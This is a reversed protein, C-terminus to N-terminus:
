VNAASRIYRARISINNTDIREWLKCLEGMMAVSRSTLHSLVAELAQNDEHMLVKRGRLLPLFSLVTLRVAKLEKWAFHQQQDVARWFGRAKLQENLVAGRVYGSSDCQLYTTEIPSFISRGNNASPVQMWWKLDRKLLYTLKVRGGM